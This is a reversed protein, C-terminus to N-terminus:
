HRSFHVSADLCTIRKDDKTYADAHVSYKGPPIESPLPIEKTLSTLGERLPCELNVNKIQACLDAKQDLLTIFGYKVILLVYAGEEIEQALTGSAEVTLNKGAEPPNPALNVHDIALLYDKPDSCYTLPNDGPVKNDGELIEQDHTNGFFTLSSAAALSSLFLTSLLMISKM